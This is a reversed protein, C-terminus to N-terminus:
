REWITSSCPLARMKVRRPRSQVAFYPGSTFAAASSDASVAIMSPSIDDGIIVPDGIERCQGGRDHVRRLAQHGDSEIEEMEVAVIKAVHRQQLAPMEELVEDFGGLPRDLEAV